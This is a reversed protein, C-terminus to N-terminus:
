ELITIEVRRNRARNAETDNPAIPQDAGLGRYVFRSAPIARKTLEDVIRRARQLSLTYQGEPRGLDATHGEVLFSNDPLRALAAAIADLRSQEEPLLQDSDPAFRLDYLLLVLGRPSDKLQFPQTDPTGPPLVSLAATNPQNSPSNTSSVADAPDLAAAATSVDTQGSSEGPSGGGLLGAIRARDGPLSGKHFHLIFGTLRITAGSAYTFTEDILERIFLTSGDSRDLYIDATRGGNSGRLAPDGLRDSGRYRLAYRAKVIHAPRGEWIGTGTYQYEVLVPIRTAPAESQPRVVVVADAQWREGIAVPKEPSAPFGRLIPYGEDRVFSIHGAASIRFSVPLTADLLRASARQDRLTEQLVFAEGEYQTIGGPLHQRSLQLRAERSVFGTYRGNDYRSFDSRETIQILGDPVVFPELVSQASLRLMADSFQLSVSILVLWIFRMAPIGPTRNPM